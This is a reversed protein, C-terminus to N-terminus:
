PRGRLIQDISTKGTGDSMSTRNGNLDYGFTVDSTGSAYDIFTLRNLPDYSFGTQQGKPDMLATQNGNPNYSYHTVLPSSTAPWNPYQTETRLRTLGDYEYATVREDAGRGGTSM